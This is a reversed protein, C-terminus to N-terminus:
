ANFRLKLVRFKIYLYIDQYKLRFSRTQVQSYSWIRLKQRPIRIKLDWSTIGDVLGFKRNPTLIIGPEQEYLIEALFSM